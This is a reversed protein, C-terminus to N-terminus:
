INQEICTRIEEVTGKAIMRNGILENGNIEDRTLDTYQYKLNKLKDLIKERIDKKIYKSNRMFYDIEGVECIFDEEYLEPSNRLIIRQIEICIQIIRKKEDQKKRTKDTLYSTLLSVFLAIFGPLLIDYFIHDSM